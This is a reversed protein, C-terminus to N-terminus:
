RIPLEPSILFNQGKERWGKWGKPCFFLNLFPQCPCFFGTSSFDAPPQNKKQPFSKSSGPSKIPTCPHSKRHFFSRLFSTCSLVCQEVFIKEMKVDKRQSVSTGLYGNLIITICFQTQHEYLLWNYMHLVYLVNRVNLTFIVINPFYVCAQM